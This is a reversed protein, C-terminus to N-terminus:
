LNFKLTAGMMNQNFSPYCQMSIATNKKLIRPTWNKLPEFYYVIQTMLMGIGAGLLVDPLWHKNNLVRLFGTATSFLYGSYALVPQSYKFENYLVQAASFSLATHGSPFSTFSSSDPRQIRTSYKLGYVVLGTLVESMILFKSQNWVHNKAKLKFADAGFMLGIPAYQIYDDLSTQYNNFPTRIKQQFNQKVAQKNIAVATGSLIVPLISKKWLKEQPQKLNFTCWNIHQYRKLTDKQAKLAFSTLLLLVLFANQVKFFHFVKANPRIKKTKQIPM